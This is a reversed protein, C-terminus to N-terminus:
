GSLNGMSGAMDMQGDFIDVGKGVSHMSKISMARSIPRQISMLNGQSASTVGGMIFGGGYNSGGSSMQQQLTGGGSMSGMSMRNRNNIRSITRFAPGKFSPQQIIEAERVMIGGNSALTGSLSRRMSGQFPIVGGGQRLSSSNYGNMTNHVYQRNFTADRESALSGGDSGDTMWPNVQPAQQRMSNYSFTEPEARNMTRTVTTVQQRTNGQYGGGLRM